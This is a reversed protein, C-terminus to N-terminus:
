DTPKQLLNIIETDNLSSNAMHLEEASNISEQGTQKKYRKICSQLIIALITLKGFDWDTENGRSTLEKQAGKGDDRVM